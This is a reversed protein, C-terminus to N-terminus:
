WDVVPCVGDSVCECGPAASGGMLWIHLTDSGVTLMLSSLYALNRLVCRAPRM